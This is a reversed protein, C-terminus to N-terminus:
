GCVSKLLRVKRKQDGLCGDTLALNYLTRAVDFHNERDHREKM